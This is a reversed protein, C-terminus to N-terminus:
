LEAGEKGVGNAVEDARQGSFNCAKDAFPVDM